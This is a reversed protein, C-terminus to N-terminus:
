HDTRVTSNGVSTAPEAGRLFRGPNGVWVEAAPVDALVVTGMGVTSWPGVSLNERVLAGAGVYAGAGVRVGGALSVSACITAFDEVVDDHTLVSNPMVAVHNGITVATTMAIGGLLISGHGVTCSPPVHVGPHVVTAFREAGIGGAALRAALRARVAGSGPCLVVVADPMSAIVETGGLVPLGDLVCGWRAPNDDTFGLLRHSDAAYVAQATERALGGAGVLLLPQRARDTM